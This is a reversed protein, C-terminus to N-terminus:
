APNYGLFERMSRQLDGVIRPVLESIDLYLEDGAIRGFAYARSEGDVCVEIPTNGYHLFALSGIAGTLGGDHSSNTVTTNTPTYGKGWTPQREGDCTTRVPRRVLLSALRLIPRPLRLPCHNILYERQLHLWLRDPIDIVFRPYHHGSQGNWNAHLMWVSTPLNPIFSGGAYFAIHLPENPGLRDPGLQDALEGVTRVWLPETQSAIDNPM